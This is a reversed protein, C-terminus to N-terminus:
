RNWGGGSWCPSEPSATLERELLLGVTDCLSDFQRPLDANRVRLLGVTHLDQPNPASECGGGSHGRTASAASVVNSAVLRTPM